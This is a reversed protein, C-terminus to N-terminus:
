EEATGPPDAEDDILTQYVEFGLSRYTAVAAPADAYADIRLLRLGLSALYDAAARVLASAIGRRRYEPRVAVVSIYGATGRRFCIAFGVGAGSDSSEAVFVGSPDFHDFQEWENPWPPRGFAAAYIEPIRDHDRHREWRRV